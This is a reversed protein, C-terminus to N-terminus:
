VAACDPQPAKQGAQASCSLPRYQNGPRYIRSARRDFIGQLAAHHGARVQARACDPARLPYRGSRPGWWLTRIEDASLVRTRAPEDDLKPLHHCPTAKIYKRGAEAAWNFMASTSSRFHRANSVSPKGYKGAVIDNSVQAIHDNDVESAVMDGLATSTFRRLYGVRDQWSEIRPRMEGDPKRVNTKIWAEYEGIVEDVTKGSLKAQQAKAVRAEQAIDQGRAARSRLQLAEARADEVTFADKCYIGLKLSVQRCQASDYYKLHFTAGKQGIKVFLGPRKGDYIKKPTSVRTECDRNTINAM